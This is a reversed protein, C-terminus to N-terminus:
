KMFCEINYMDVFFVFFDKDVDYYININENVNIRFIINKLYNLIGREGVSNENYLIKFVMKLFNM